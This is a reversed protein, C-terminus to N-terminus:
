MGDRMERGERESKGDTQDTSRLVLACVDRLADGGGVVLLCELGVGVLLCLLLLLEGDAFLGLREGLPHELLLGLSVLALAEEELTM